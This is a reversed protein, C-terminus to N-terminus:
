LIIFVVTSSQNTSTVTQVLYKHVDTCVFTCEAMTPITRYLYQVTQKDRLSAALLFYYFISERLVVNLMNM